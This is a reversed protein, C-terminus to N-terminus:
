LKNALEEAAKRSIRNNSCVSVAPFPINRIPYVTDHLTTVLPNLAFSGYSSYTLLILCVASILHIIAWMSRELYIRDTQALHRYCHSSSNELVVYFEKRFGLNEDVKSNEIQKLWLSKSQLKVM